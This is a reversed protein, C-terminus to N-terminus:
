PMCTDKESWLGGEAENRHELIDRLSKKHEFIDELCKECVSIDELCKLCMKLSGDSLCGLCM